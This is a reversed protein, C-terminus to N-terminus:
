VVSKRDKLEDESTCSARLPSTASTVGTGPTLPSSSVHSPSHVATPGTPSSPHRKDRPLSGNTKIRNQQLTHHPSHTSRPPPTGRDESGSRQQRDYEACLSLIEELRLREATAAEQEAVRDEVAQQKKIQSNRLDERSCRIASPSTPSGVSGNSTNSPTRRHWSNTRCAVTAGPSGNSGTIPDVETFPNLVSQSSSSISPATGTPSTAMSGVNRIPVSPQASLVAISNAPLPAMPPPPDTPTPPLPITPPPPITPQSPLPPSPLSRYCANHFSTMGSPSVVKSVGEVRRTNPGRPALPPPSVREENKTYIYDGFYQPKPAMVPAMGNVRHHNLLADSRPPVEPPVDSDSDSESHHQSNSQTPFASQNVYYASPPLEESPHGPPDSCMKVRRPPVAPKVEDAEEDDDGPLHFYEPNDMGPPFFNIPVMSIRADPLCARM